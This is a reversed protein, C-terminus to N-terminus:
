EVEIREALIQKSHAPNQNTFIQVSDGKIIQRPVLTESYTFVARDESVEGDHYQTLIVDEVVGLVQGSFVYDGFEILSTTQQSDQNNPLNWLMVVMITIFFVLIIIKLSDKKM